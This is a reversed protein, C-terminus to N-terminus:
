EELKERIRHSDEAKTLLGWDLSQDQEYNKGLTLAIRAKSLEYGLYFSHSVDVNRSEPKALLEQMMLFPDEGQIHVGAAILHISKGDILIRYNNDKIDQALQAIVEPEFYRLRSDRLMILREEMRKPPIGQRVAHHVLKRAVDCERVCSAAWPIVQTTLVSGVEIEECIGLLLTNIAASDVDTLETLNGIGMMMKADPFAKRTQFYRDLSRSFGCGIPELIPDLRFAVGHRDLFEMTEMMSPLFREFDDPVVVVEIGWDIAAQRNTSNVSLVLEAGARAAQAAEWPDFTDISVRVGEERLRRISDEIAEWRKGPECGLDILDAGERTWQIATKLLEETTLRPAYNIEALIEIRHEGYGDSQRRDLGFWQPLDRLDKPGCDITKSYQSRIEDIGEGLYGPLVVRTAEDPIKLHRLLWKPTMLAAVTIPLRDISYAFGLRASLKEVITRLAPEALKGTVFHIHESSQM